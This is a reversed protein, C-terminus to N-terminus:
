LSANRARRITAEDFLNGMESKVGNRDMEALWMAHIRPDQREYEVQAGGEEASKDVATEWMERKMGLVPYRVSGFQVALYRSPHNGTNFHQHLMGDPPTCVM